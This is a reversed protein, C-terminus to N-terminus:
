AQRLGCCGAIHAATADCTALAPATVCVLTHHQTSPLLHVKNQEEVFTVLHQALFDFLQNCSGTYVERPIAVQRM